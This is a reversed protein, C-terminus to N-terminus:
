KPASDSTPPPPGPKRAVMSGRGRLLPLMVLSVLCIVATAQTVQNFSRILAEREVTAILVALGAQDATPSDGYIGHFIGSMRPLVSAAAAQGATVTEAIRAYHVRGLVEIASNALAIAVAAGLRMVLNFLASANKVQDTPIPSLALTVVSLWCIQSALGRVVQPLVLEAFGYEATLQGQMWTGIALGVFGILLTTRRRMYRLMAGAIPTSAIMSCGLVVVITGIEFTDIARVRALYLPLLFLPIYLVAGFVSIYFCGLAFDRNRFVRLDVVPHRCTLERWLFLYGSVASVVALTIITGSEFWDQRRGEELVVLLTIVCIAALAIGAYDIHRALDTEPKDFDILTASLVMLILAIPVSILFLWQWSLIETIWGGVTPGVAMSTVACFSVITMVRTQKKAPYVTYVTAFVLPMLAGGSFGQLARFVIMSEINWANACGLSALAFAGTCASFLWRTSALRSLWGSLPIMIVEAILAATLVWSVQDPGAALGGQIEKFSSNVIQINVLAMYMGCCMAIFAVTDRLSLTPKTESVDSM